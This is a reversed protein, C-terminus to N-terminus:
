DGCAAGRLPQRYPNSRKRISEVQIDLGTYADCLAAIRMAKRLNAGALFAGQAYPAGSGIFYVDSESEFERGDCDFVYLGGEDDLAVADMNEMSRPPKGGTILYVDRFWEVFDKCDALRGCAAILVERDGAFVIREIKPNLKLIQGNELTTQKDAM